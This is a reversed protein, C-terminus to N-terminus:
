GNESSQCRVYAPRFRLTARVATYVFGRGRHTFLCARLRRDPVAATVALCLRALYTRVTDLTLRPRSVVVLGFATAGDHLDRPFPPPPGVARWFHDALDAVWVPTM